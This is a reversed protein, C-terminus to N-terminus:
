TGFRVKNHFSLAISWILLSMATAVAAGNMGFAPILALNLLINAGASIAMCRMTDREHGTMNLLISLPGFTANFLQGVGLIMLPLYSGVYDEGFLKHLLPKGFVLFFLIVLFAALSSVAMGLFQLQKLRGIDHKENLMAFYPPLFMSIIQYGIIVLGAGLNAVRYVAIDEAPVFFGLMVIDTYRIFQYMGSTLALPIIAALWKKSEFQPAPNAALPQPRNRRLLWAGFLFAIAAVLGHLGMATEASLQTPAIWWSTLLVALILGAPRLVQEPLKSQVVVRLGELAAGRLTGLAILPLLVLGFFFTALQLDSFRDAVLWAVMAAIAALGLSLSGSVAMSWRWLGRMLGWNENVHAKATERVVLSPLGFQAPISLISVLAFVYTYYGYGLPGLMRALVIALVLGLGINGIRIVLSGIGARGLQGHLGDAFILSFLNPLQKRANNPMKCGPGLGTQRM